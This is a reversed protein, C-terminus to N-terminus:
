RRSKGKSTTKKAPPKPALARVADALERIAAAIAYLAGTEPPQLESAAPPLPSQGAEDSM